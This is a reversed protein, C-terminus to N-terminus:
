ISAKQNRLASRKGFNKSDYIDKECESCYGDRLPVESSLSGKLLRVLEVM